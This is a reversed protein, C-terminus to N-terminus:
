GWGRRRIRTAELYYSGSEFGTRPHNYGEAVVSNSEVRWRFLEVSSSTFSCEFNERLSIGTSWREGSRTQYTSWSQRVYAYKM